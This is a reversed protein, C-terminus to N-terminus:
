LVRQQASKKLEEKPLRSPQAAGGQKPQLTAALKQATQQLVSRDSALEGYIQASSKQKAAQVEPLQKIKEKLISAATKSSGLKEQLGSCPRSYITVENAEMKLRELSQEKEELQKRKDDDNSVANEAQLQGYEMMAATVKDTIVKVEEKYKPDNSYAEGNLKIARGVIEMGTVAAVRAVPDDVQRGELVAQAIEKQAELGDRRIQSMAAAGRAQQLVTDTLGAKKAAELLEPRSDLINVLEGCQGGYFVAKDNMVNSSVFMDNNMKLGQAIIKGLPEPDGNVMASVADAVAQRGQQMVTGYHGSNDRPVVNFFGEFIFAYVEKAKQEAPVGPMSNHQGGIDPSACASLALVAWQHDTLGTSTPNEQQEFPLEEKKYVHQDLLSQVHAFKPGMLSDLKRTSHDLEEVAKSAERRKLAAEHRERENVIEAQRAHFQAPIKEEVRKAADYIAKERRYNEFEDRYAYGFTLKNLFSHLLGPAKPEQTPFVMASDVPPSLKVRGDEMIQIQRLATEGLPYVFINGARILEYLSQRTEPTDQFGDRSLPQSYGHPSDSIEVGLDLIRSCDTPLDLDLGAQSKLMSKVRNIIVDVGVRPVALEEIETGPQIIDETWNPNPM